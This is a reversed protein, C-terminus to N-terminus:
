LLGKQLDIRSFVACSAAKTAFDLMNFLPYVDLETVLNLRGGEEGHKPNQVLSFNVVLHDRVRGSALDLTGSPPIFDVRAFPELRSQCLTAWLLHTPTSELTSM